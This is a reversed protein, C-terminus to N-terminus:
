RDHKLFQHRSFGLAGIALALYLICILAFLKPSESWHLVNADPGRGLNIVGLIVSRLTSFALGAGLFAAPLPARIRSGSDPDRTLKEWLTM